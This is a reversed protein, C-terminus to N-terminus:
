PARRYVSLTRDPAAAFRDILKLGIGAPDAAVWSDEQSGGCGTLWYSDCLVVVTQADAPAVLRVGDLNLPYAYADSGKPAFLPV